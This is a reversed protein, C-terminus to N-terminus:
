SHKEVWKEFRSVAVRAGDVSRSYGGDCPRLRARMLFSRIAKRQRDIDAGLGLNAGKREAATLRLELDQMVTSGRAEPCHRLNALAGVASYYSGVLPHDPRLDPDHLHSAGLLALIVSIGM